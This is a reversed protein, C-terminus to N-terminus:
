RLEKRYIAWTKQSMDSWSYKKVQKKGKAILKSRLASDSILIGIKQALDSASKPDFYLAADQYIEPLVSARAAIVPTGAAMAELGPLGFGEILSPFVLALSNQYLYHLQSDSVSGFFKVWKNLYKEDILAQIKQTFVSRACVLIALVEGNLEKVADLLLPINKHPYVNGVHLIYPRYDPIDVASSSGSLFLPSVGEYTVSIKVAPIKFRKILEYKWFNAPVIIHAARSVTFWVIFLYQLYKLWYVAPSRTTTAPGKSLHKILDHITVVIKGPWLFPVTFHPVHLLAPRIKLLLWLMEFQSLYTYPHYRATYKSFQKLEPLAANEPSIILTVSSPDPLNTILNQVYRGIGTHRIGYLRADICIKKM